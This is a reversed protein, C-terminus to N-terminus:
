KEKKGFIEIFLIMKETFFLNGISIEWIYANQNPLLSILKSILWDFLVISQLDQFYPRKNSKSDLYKRDVDNRLIIQFM